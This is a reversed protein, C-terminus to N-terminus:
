QDSPLDKVNPLMAFLQVHTVKGFPGPYSAYTKKDSHFAIALGSMLQNEGLQLCREFRIDLTAKGNADTTFVSQSGDREGLPLDLTGAFPETPPAPMFFHWMTYVANPVLNEFEGKITGWGGECSCTATGSANLWERLTMGLPEGKLYPGAKKADFPDHHQATATTFLPADLFQDREEPLVRYVLGSGPVKEVFVDLEILGAQLHDVFTLEIPKDGPDGKFASFVLLVLATLAARIANKM